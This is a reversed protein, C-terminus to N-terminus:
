PRQILREGLGGARQIKGDFVALPGETQLPRQTDSAMVKMTLAELAYVRRVHLHCTGALDTLPRDSFTNLRSCHCGCAAKASQLVAM